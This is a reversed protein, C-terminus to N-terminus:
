IVKKLIIKNSKNALSIYGNSELFSSIDEYINEMIPELRTVQTRQNSLKNYTHIEAPSQSGSSTSTDIDCSSRESDSSFSSFPSSSDISFESSNLDYSTSYGSNSNIVAEKARNELQDFNIHVHINPTKHYVHEIPLEIQFRISKSSESM